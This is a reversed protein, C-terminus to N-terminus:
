QVLKEAGAKRCWSKQVLKEAGGLPVVCSVLAVHALV